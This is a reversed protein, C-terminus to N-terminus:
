LDDYQEKPRKQCPHRNSISANLGPNITIVLLDLYQVVNRMTEENEKM